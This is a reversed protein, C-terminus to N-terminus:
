SLNKIVQLDGSQAAKLIPGMYEDVLSANLPVPMNKLKMDLQPNKAATLARDIHGTTFGPLESLTTPMKVSKSFAIMGGAVALGLERGKLSGLDEDIFGYRKYIDGVLRLKEEIAPAFFVTYYPNMLACARGHSTVDVMSFSTLHGGNTGGVMIAYGGLDTALGIAERAELNQPDALIEKLYKVVLEICTLAIEKGKEFNDGGIGYFVELSHAIGDLAGDVTLGVPASRTIEYDFVAKVPIIADDVILKKQGV